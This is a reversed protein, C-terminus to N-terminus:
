ANENEEFWDEVAQQISGALAAIQDDTGNPLFHRALDGCNPDYLTM